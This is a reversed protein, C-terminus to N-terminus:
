KGLYFGCLIFYISISREWSCESKRVLLFLEVHNNQISQDKWIGNGSLTIDHLWHCM